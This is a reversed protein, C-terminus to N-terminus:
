AFAAEIDNLTLHWRELMHTFVALEPETITKNAKAIDLVMAAVMLRKQSDTVFDLLDDIRERDILHIRGEEDAEDSLDNCYDHLVTIFRQRPINLAEYIHLKELEDVERLDMNGDSMMVMIVLRAMAEPTNAGYKKM